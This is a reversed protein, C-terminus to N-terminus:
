VRQKPGWLCSCRLCCSLFRAIKCDQELRNLMSVTVVAATIFLASGAGSTAHQGVSLKLAAPLQNSLRTHEITSM